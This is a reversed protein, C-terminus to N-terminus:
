NNFQLGLSLKNQALTNISLFNMGGVGSSVDDNTDRLRFGYPVPLSQTFDVGNLYRPIEIKGYVRNSVITQGTYPDKCWAYMTVEGSSLIVYDGLIEDRNYPQPEPLAIDYVIRSGIISSPRLPYYAGPTLTIPHNVQENWRYLLKTLGQKSNGSWEQSDKRFLFCLNGFNAISLANYSSKLFLVWSDNNEL